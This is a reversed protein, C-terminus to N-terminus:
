RAPAAVKPHLNAIAPIVKEGIIELPKIKDVHAVGGIVTQIGMGNLWHLGGIVKDVKEGNEGVDFTFMATKEIEDYNRGVAQCHERLVELKHPLEPTPFLNCANAYQAVMRLTKKEGGGGILIPPHPRTLSQPSNLPRDLQNHKGKYPKESGREGEWMQLCIQLTEELREFREAMPPFPIGLGKSEAENWAAGIGLWARGGSLVDLTTVTKALIGPYRYVAGTVMTGLRAKSTVGAMFALASYGELMDKEPPGIMGIQWFHDMVWISDFGAQDATRAIQALTGGLKSPGGPWSFDAISLGIKM